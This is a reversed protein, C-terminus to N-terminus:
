QWQANSKSGFLAEPPQTVADVAAAQVAPERTFGPAYAAAYRTPNTIGQRKLARDAEVADARCGRLEAQRLRALARYVEMHRVEFLQAARELLDIARTMDGSLAAAAARLVRAHAITHPQGEHVLSAADREVGDLMTRRATADAAAVALAARARLLHADGRVLAHRLLGARAIDRWGPGIRQWAQASRGELLDCLTLLRLVYFHQMSFNQQSWLSLIRAAADRVAHTDDLALRFLSQNLLATVTGYLDGRGDAERLLQEARGGMEALEGLEELARFSAMSAIDIEWTVARCRERLTESGGDVLALMDRWEGELMRIQAMVIASLGMMYPDQTTEAISRARRILDAAWRATPGGAPLLAAGVLAMARASRTPDGCRRAIGLSRVAFYLGRFPDVLALGSAAAHCTDARVLAQRAPPQSSAPGQPARTLWLPLLRGLTGLFAGGASRPYRLGTHDLLSRLVASGDEIHGSVLYQEAARRRLDVGDVSSSHAAAMYLSAADAGHGANVLADARRVQLAARGSEEWEKLELAQRYLEAADAFALAEAAGDAARVAWGAARPREHAGLYHRFLAEADPTPQAELTTALQLHRERLTAPELQELLTERIRDHYIEVATQQDQLQLRLLGELQLRTVLPRGSEGVAVASLALRRDLPRGAVAVIELVDRAVKPLREVRARLLGALDLSLRPGVPPLTGDGGVHRVLQAVLFPSGGAEAAIAASEESLRSRLLQAALAHTDEPSLPELRLASVTDPPREQADKDLAQMLTVAEHQQSRYSLVLLMAPPDPEHVLERLLAGSDDDSWQADDVWLVLRCREATRALLDRLATFARRRTEYPETAHGHDSWAALAPVRGLVPFVRVLAAAHRPVLAAARGDPLSLLYHSLADIITDFARYPVVENPHCRGRLVVAADGTGLEDLFRRVLETKGIGSPGELQVIALRGRRVCELAGRLQALERGRGVFPADLRRAPAPEGGRVAALIDRAGPREAPTRSLLRRVLGDLDAPVTPVLQAPSPPDYRTKDVFIRAAPGQFPLRGTLAEYLVVGISYWDAAPTLPQSFACEPAMYAITGGVGSLNDAVADGELVTALGFDLLVVRHEPTVLINQPKIDRHLKGAAHLAAVGTVLQRVTDALRAYDPEATREGGPVGRIHEVLHVGDVFEMTFFCEWEDVMLEYLEVLHPHLIGTLARFEQKLRYLQEPDRTPLTKLAVDVGMEEDHVRYVLGASGRGLFAVPRFRTTGLFAGRGHPDDLM